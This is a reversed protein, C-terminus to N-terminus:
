ETLGKALLVNMLRCWGLQNGESAYFVDIWQRIPALPGGFNAVEEKIFTSASV